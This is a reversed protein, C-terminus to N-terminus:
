KCVSKALHSALGTYTQPTLNLLTNKAEDSISLSAIFNKIDQEGISKGRSFVKLQEYADAHGEHRLVTQIAETLVQWNAQLDALLKDRNIDIKDLGQGVGQWALFLHGFATGVSRLATSDTLDRQWRSIPLKQGLHNLLANAIGLNGEANEFDIPNIKHPMTSSGTEMGGASIQVFYDSSIYSWCDRCLDILITNIGALLAFLEALDDYPEIQTTYAVPKLGWSEIFQHTVRQWEVQPLAVQHANFNGVAGNFKGPLRTNKLRHLRSSLRHVFNAFEKGMTTPSAPQGHTRSLMAVEAYDTAKGALQQVLQELQPMIVNDLVDAVQKTYAINNIDWSTCAFHVLPKLDARGAAALREGIWYEVAKVDHRTANEIEKVAEATGESAAEALVGNLLQETAADMGGRLELMVKLWAVEIQIRYQILAAESFYRPLAGMKAAYRGDVASLALLSLSSMVRM